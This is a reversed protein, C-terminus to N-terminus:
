RDTTTSYAALVRPFHAIAADRGVVPDAGVTHIEVDAPSAGDGTPSTTPTSPPSTASSPPGADRAWGPGQLENMAGFSWRALSPDGFATINWMVLHRLGARPVRAFEEVVQTPPAASRTTDSWRRAPDRRHDAAVGGRDIATPIFDHFGSGDPRRRAAARRRPRPVGAAAAARVAGARAPGRDAACPRRTPAWSSTASCEPTIADADRGPRRRGARITALAEGYEDPATMKTPLWGDAKRGTLELMRPGHAATWIEPPTAATPRCASCPTRSRPPVPGRLRGPGDADWLLRM